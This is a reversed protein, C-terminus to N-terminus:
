HVLTMENILRQAGAFKDIIFLVYRIDVSICKQLTPEFAIDSSMAEWNGDFALGFLEGNANIVPSGSNGGTIDNNTTFCVHMTGDSDAYPGFDTNAYLKKLKQPVIFEINTSDEKEMVGKLTTYYKYNVADKPSYGGVTGASMRMTFNADPYFTKRDLMEHLGAEFLRTGKEIYKEYPQLNGSIDRYKAVVIKADKLIPDNALANANQAKIVAYLKNPNTFISKKFRKTVYKAYGEPNRKKIDNYIAPYYESDINQAYVELLAILTKRDTEPNYNKYFKDADKKLRAFKTEITKKSGNYALEALGNAKIAFQYIEVGKIFAENYFYRAKNLERRTTYGEELLSLAEKYPEGKSSQNVWQAFEKELEKKRELVHLNVIGKNMGISNKYYNASRAYKSAYQINVKESQMMDSWWVDQKAKRVIIQAENMVNMREDIGWSSLYRNTSGPFGITMAFDNAEMGKLSIPLHYRPKLPINNKAYKAPKGASDAYVRFMSFDGTHRPWMWNDTEDGFNGISSPPAGVFRIDTYKESLFAYYTNGAFLPMVSCKYDCKAEEEQEIAKSVSDILQNYEYNLLGDKIVSLVRETVDHMGRIFTVSLGPSPIEDQMTKAWFGDRLYNHELTSHKQISAYGCHHNTLVLGKDSIIEGTCGNDFIVIADKLSTSDTNYIANADLKCGMSQMNRINLQEILPLLWMGEDAKAIFQFFLVTVLFIAKKM